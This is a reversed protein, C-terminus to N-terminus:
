LKEDLTKICRELGADIVKSRRENPVLSILTELGEVQEQTIPILYTDSAGYEKRCSEVRGIIMRAMKKAYEVTM